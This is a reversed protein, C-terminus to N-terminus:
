NTEEEYLEEAIERLLGADIGYYECIELDEQTLEQRNALKNFIMQTEVFEKDSM